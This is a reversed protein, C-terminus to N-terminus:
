FIHLIFKELEYKKGGKEYYYYINMLAYFDYFFIMSLAM